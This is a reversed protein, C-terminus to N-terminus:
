KENISLSAYKINFVKKHNTLEKRVVYPGNLGLYARLIDSEQCEILEEYEKVFSYLDIKKFNQWHKILKDIAEISNNYFKDPKDNLECVLVAHWSKIQHCFRM